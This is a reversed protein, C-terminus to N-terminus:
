TPSQGIILLKLQGNVKHKAFIELVVHMAKRSFLGKGKGSIKTVPVICGKLEVLADNAPHILIHSRNPVNEVIWHWNFKKSYRRRLNYEGEPICSIQKQNELWPLEITYAIHENNFLLEGHTAEKLYVRKLIFM